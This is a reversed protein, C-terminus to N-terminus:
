LLAPLLTDELSFKGRTGACVLVIDKSLDALAKAVSSCNLLSGIFVRGNEGAAYRIAKTGNTTSIIVTKDKVVSATYELPSNGLHFGTVKIAGREGGLIFSGEPLQRALAFADEVDIVPIVEKCGNALATSITSSARLIDFM